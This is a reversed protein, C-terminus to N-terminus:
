TAFNRASSSIYHNVPQKQSKQVYHWCFAAASFRWELIAIPWLKMHRSSDRAGAEYDLIYVAAFLHARTFCPGNLCKKKGRISQSHRHSFAGFEFKALAM